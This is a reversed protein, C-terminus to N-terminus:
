CRAEEPKTGAAAMRVAARHGLLICFPIRSVSAAAPVRIVRMSNRRCRFQPPDVKRLGSEGANRAPAPKLASGLPTQGLIRRRGLSGEIVILRHGIRSTGSLLRFVHALRVTARTLRMLALDVTEDLVRAAGQCSSRFTTELAENAARVAKPGRCGHRALRSFSAFKVYCANRMADVRWRACEPWLVAFSLTIISVEYRYDRAVSKGEAVWTSKGHADDLWGFSGVMPVPFAVGTAVWTGSVHRAAGATISRWQTVKAPVVENAWDLLPGLTRPEFFRSSEGATRRDVETPANVRDAAPISPQTLTREGQSSLFCPFVVRRALGVLRGARAKKERGTTDVLTADRSGSRTTEPRSAVENGRHFSRSSVPARTGGELLQCDLALSVAFTQEGTAPCATLAEATSGDGGPGGKLSGPQHHIRKRCVGEKREQEQVVAVAWPVVWSQMWVPSSQGLKIKRIELPETEHKRDLICHCNGQKHRVWATHRTVAVGNVPVAHEAKEM